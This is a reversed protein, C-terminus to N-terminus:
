QDGTVDFSPDGIAGDSEASLPAAAGTSVVQDAIQDDLAVAVIGDQHGALDLGPVIHAACEADLGSTIAQM